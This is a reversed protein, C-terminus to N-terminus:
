FDLNPVFQIHLPVASLWFTFDEEEKEEDDIVGTARHHHHHQQQRVIYLLRNTSSKEKGLRPKTQTLSHCECENKAEFNGKWLNKRYRKQAFRSM